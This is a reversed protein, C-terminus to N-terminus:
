LAAMTRAHAAAAARILEATADWGLCPDTISVGYRLEGPDAGLPQCGDELNSEIILGRIADQGSSTLALCSRFTGAPGAAPDRDANGHGCDVVLRPPLGADALAKRARMIGADDCNPRVGGRLVLHGHTNGTTAFSALGGNETLGFTQRPRATARVAHIAGDLSGDQSNKFGVPCPLGSALERFLLSESNAAGIFAWAMLDALYSILWPESISVAVPLGAAVLAAMLRRAILLGEDVRSSGDLTPDVILGNWGFSARPKDFHARMVLLLSGAVEESLEIMRDAFEITADPDHISCPGAVIILRADEGDLVCRVAERAALVAQVTQPTPPVAHLIAAPPPLPVASLIHRYRIAADVAANPQRLRM